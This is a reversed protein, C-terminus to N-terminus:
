ETLNNYCGRGTNFLVSKLQWFIEKKRLIQVKECVSSYLLTVPFSHGNHKGKAAASRNEAAPRNTEAYRAKMAYWAERAIRTEPMKRAKLWKRPKASAPPEPSLPVPMPLCWAPLISRSKTHRIRNPYM